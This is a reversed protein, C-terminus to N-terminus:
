AAHLLEKELLLALLKAKDEDSMAPPTPAALPNTADRNALAELSYNQQQSLVADGGTVPPLNLRKRAENSAMITNGVAKGLSEVLTATDMRFLGDLDLQVRFGEGIELGEFLCLEMAEIHIQLCQGYYQLTLGEINNYTPLPGVGAMYAPVHYVSCVTEATLKLIELLQADVNSMRMPEYKLGDGAVAIKGSNAGTYNAQWFEKLRRATEDGIAGPATLVGGPSSGNEFFAKLNSQMKLGLGGSVTCAYLPPLGVLPHYLCNDRDHIIESAPVVLQGEQLGALNDSNLQYFVEGGDAVLPTVRCPDLLLLGDIERGKRVKLAYANGHILKSTIWWQKFQIHNQYHNPKRLLKSVDHEVEQWIDQSKKQVCPSLKGVDGSILTICAFVPPYSVVSDATDYASHQQWAGPHWDFIRLWGRDDVSSLGQAM